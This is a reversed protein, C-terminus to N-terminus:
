VRPVPSHEQHAERLCRPCVLAAPNIRTMCWQCRVGGFRIMWSTGVFRNMAICAAASVFGTLMLYVLPMILANDQGSYEETTGVQWALMGFTGALLFAASGCLTWNSARQGRTHRRLHYGIVAIWWLALVPWGLICPYEILLANQAHLPVFYLVALTAVIAAGWSSTVLLRPQKRPTQNNM